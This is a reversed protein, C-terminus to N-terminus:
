QIQPSAQRVTEVVHAVDEATLGPHVPVSLVSDAAAAAAPATVDYGDYAGLEHIPSPYYVASGVGNDALREELGDRDACRVTYQHYAHRTGDPEVPIEVGPVDALGASLTAAHSRRHQIWAPLKELQVRGIAAAMSTMRLNHGLRPHAYSGGDADRGHNVFSATREAVADDDTVVMGGEGTTMNKTPYFSFAAADGFTGVSQGGYRAGHAQAADELLLVDEEDALACLADMDAPLGYLHVALVADADHERVAQRTAAPDLNYTEPDIDAFVPDAGVLRIANASAVFSFPTTVVTDGEGIGLGDLAAVLAATGNATAVANDAGCYDAFESEFARVEPGDAVMGSDLVRRVAAQEAEGFEPNAIDIM